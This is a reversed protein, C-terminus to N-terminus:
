ILIKKINKSLKLTSIDFIFKKFNIKIYKLIFFVKFIIVIVDELAKLFILVAEIKAVV